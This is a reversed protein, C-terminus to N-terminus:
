GKNADLTSLNLFKELIQWDYHIIQVMRSFNWPQFRGTWLVGTETVYQLEQEQHIDTINFFAM